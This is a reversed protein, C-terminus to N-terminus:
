SFTKTPLRPNLRFNRGVCGFIVVLLAADECLKSIHSRGEVAVAVKLPHLLHAQRNFHPQLLASPPIV